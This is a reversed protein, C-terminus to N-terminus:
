FVKKSNLKKIVFNYEKTVVKSVLRGLTHKYLISLALGVVFKIVVYGSVFVFCGLTSTGFVGCFVDYLWNDLYVRLFQNDTIIYIYLSYSSIMNIIGSKFNKKCSAILMGGYAMSLIFPNYFKNWISFNKGVVSVYIGIYNLVVAGLFWGAIGCILLCIGVRYVKREEFKKIYKKLSSTFVHIMVFGILENFYLGNYVCVFCDFLLIVILTFKFNLKSDRLAKNVFGHLCYYIM